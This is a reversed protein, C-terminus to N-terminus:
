HLATVNLMYAFCITTCMEKLTHEDQNMVLNMIMIRKSMNVSGRM